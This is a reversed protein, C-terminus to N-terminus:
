KYTSEIFEITNDIYKRPRGSVSLYLQNVHELMEEKNVNSLAWNILKHNVKGTKLPVKYLVIEDTFKYKLLYKELHHDILCGYLELEEELLFADILPQGFFISKKFDATLKGCSICGKIPIEKEICMQMFVIALYLMDNLSDKSDDNSIMLFSDSFLVPKISSNIANPKNNLYLNREEEIMEKFSTLQELKELVNEHSNHTVFDKFGMIDFFAIFRKNTNLWM